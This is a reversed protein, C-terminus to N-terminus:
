SKIQQSKVRLIRLLKWTHSERKLGLSKDHSTIDRNHLHSVLFCSVLLKKVGASIHSSIKFKTWLYRLPSIQIPYRTKVAFLIKCNVISPNTEDGVTCFEFQFM